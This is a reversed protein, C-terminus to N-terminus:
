SMSELSHSCKTIYCRGIVLDDTGKAKIQADTMQGAIVHLAAKKLKNQSRFGRLNDVLGSGISVDGARPAHDKVWEANLAQEATIREKPSFKLLNRILGKADQMAECLVAQGIEGIAPGRFKELAESDRLCGILIGTVM